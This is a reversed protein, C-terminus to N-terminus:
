QYVSCGEQEGGGRYCTAVPWGDEMEIKCCDYHWETWEDCGTEYDACTECVYGYWDPLIECVEEARAAGEIASPAAIVLVVIAVGRLLQSIVRM